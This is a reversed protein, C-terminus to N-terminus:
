RVAKWNKGYHSCISVNSEIFRELESNDVFENVTLGSSRWLERVEEVSSIQTLYCNNSLNSFTSVITWINKFVQLLSNIAGAFFKSPM